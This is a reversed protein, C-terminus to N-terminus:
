VYRRRTKNPSAMRELEREAAKNGGQALKSLKAKRISRKWAVEETRLSQRRKRAREPSSRMARKADRRQQAARSNKKM